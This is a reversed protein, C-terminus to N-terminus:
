EIFRDGRYNYFSWWLGIRPVKKYTGTSKFKKQMDDTFLSLKIKEKGTNEIEREQKIASTLFELIVSLLLPSYIDKNADVLSTLLLLDTDKMISPSETETLHWKKKKLLRGKGPQLLVWRNM